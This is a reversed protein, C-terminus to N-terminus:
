GLMVRGGGRLGEGRGMGRAAVVVARMMEGVEEGTGDGVDLGAVNDM